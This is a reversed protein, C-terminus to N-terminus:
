AGAPNSASRNALVMSFDWVYAHVSRKHFITYGMSFLEFFLQQLRELPEHDLHVRILLEAVRIHQVAQLRKLFLVLIGFECGGCDLKLILISKHGNRGFVLSEMALRHLDMASLHDHDNPHRHIHLGPIASSWPWGQNSRLAHVTCGQVSQEFTTEDSMTTVSIVTSHASRCDVPGCVWWGGQESKNPCVDHVPLHHRQWAMSQVIGLPASGRHEYSLHENQYVSFVFVSAFSVFLFWALLRGSYQRLHSLVGTGCLWISSVVGQALQSVVSPTSQNGQLPTNKHLLPEETDSPPSAFPQSLETRKQEPFTPLWNPSPSTSALMWM